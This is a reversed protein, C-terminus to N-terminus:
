HLFIFITLEDGFVTGGNWFFFEFRACAQRSHKDYSRLKFAVKLLLLGPAECEVRFLQANTDVMRREDETLDKRNVYKRASLLKM